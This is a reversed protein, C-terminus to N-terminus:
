IEELLTRFAVFKGGFKSQTDAQLVPAFEDRYKEYSSMDPCSYQIAYTFGTEDEQRSLLKYMHCGSFLGTAMVDQIHKSKMWNLWEQHIEEEVNITVNYIIM